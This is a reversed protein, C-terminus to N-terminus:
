ELVTHCEFRSYKSKYLWSISKFDHSSHSKLEKEEVSHIKISQPMFNLFMIAMWLNCIKAWGGEDKEFCSYM